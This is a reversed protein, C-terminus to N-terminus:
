ISPLNKLILFNIGFKFLNYFFTFSHQGFSPFSYYKSWYIWLSKTREFFSWLPCFHKTSQIFFWWSNSLFGEFGSSYIIQKDLRRFLFRIMIWCFILFFAFETTQIGEELFAFMKGSHLIKKQILELWNQFHCKKL